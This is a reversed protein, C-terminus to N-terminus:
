VRRRIEHGRFRFGLLVALGTAKQRLEKRLNTLCRIQKEPWRQAIHNDLLQYSFDDLPGLYLSQDGCQMRHYQHGRSNRGIGIVPRRPLISIIKYAVLVRDPIQRSILTMTGRKTAASGSDQIDTFMISWDWARWALMYFLKTKPNSGM